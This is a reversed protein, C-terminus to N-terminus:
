VETLGVSVLFLTNNGSGLKTLEPATTFFVDATVTAGLTTDVLSVTALNTGTTRIDDWAEFIDILTQYESATAFASVTWLRKQRVVPGTGYGVGLQSFNLSAQTIYSRPLNDDSFKDFTVSNVGLSITISGAM